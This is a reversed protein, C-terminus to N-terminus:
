RPCSISALSRNTISLRTRGCGRASNKSGRKTTHSSQKCPLPKRRKTISSTPKTGALSGNSITLRATEIERSILLAQAEVLKRNEPTDKLGTGEWSKMRDWFLRFALFGHRNVKARCAM